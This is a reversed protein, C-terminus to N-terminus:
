APSLCGAATWVAVALAAYAEDGGPVAALVENIPAPLAGPKVGLMSAALTRGDARQASELASTTAARLDIWVLEAGAGSGRALLNPTRADGHAFGAVHLARLAAFAAAFRAQSDLVARACVDRLLFGGGRYAGAADFFFALSGDVVPVVPAGAAAARALIDFEYSLHAVSLESSVKLAHLGAEGTGALRAVCFVRASGGAGLFASACAAGDPEAGSVTVRRPAVGLAGCLFRLLPVLQPEPAGDFFARLAARSGRAGVRV